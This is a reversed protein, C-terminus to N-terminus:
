LTHTHIIGTQLNWLESKLHSRADRYSPRDTRRDTPRDTPWAKTLIASFRANRWSDRSWGILFASFHNMLWAVSLFCQLYYDYVSSTADNALQGQKSYNNVLDIKWYSAVIATVFVIVVVVIVVVATAELLLRDNSTHFKWDYHSTYLNRHTHSCNM